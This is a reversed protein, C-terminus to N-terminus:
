RSRRVIFHLKKEIDCLNNSRSNNGALFTRCLSSMTLVFNFIKRNEHVKAQHYYHTDTSEPLIANGVIVVSM